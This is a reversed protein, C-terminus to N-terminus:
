KIYKEIIDSKIRYEETIMSYEDNIPTEQKIIEYNKKMRNVPSIELFYKKINESFEDEDDYFVTEKNIHETDNESLLTGDYGLSIYQEIIKLDIIQVDKELSGTLLPYNTIVCKVIQKELDIETFYKKHEILFDTKRNVQEIGKYLAAKYNVFDRSEFPYEICKIEGILITHKTEWILDIEENKGGYKFKKRSCIKSNFGKHKCLDDILVKTYNEFENGKQNDHDFLEKAWTDLLMNPNSSLSGLAILFDNKIVLMPKSWFDEKLNNEFLKLISIIRQKGLTTLKEIMSIITKREFRMQLNNIEFNNDSKDIKLTECIKLAIYQICNYVLIVDFLSDIKKKPLYAYHVLLSSCFGSFLISFYNDSFDAYKIFGYANVFEVSEIKVNNIRSQLIKDIMNDRIMINLFYLENNIMRQTSISRYLDFINKKLCLYKDNRIEVQTEEFCVKDYISKLCTFHNCHILFNKYYENIVSKKLKICIKNKKPKNETCYIIISFTFNLTDIINDNIDRFSREQNGIRMRLIDPIFSSIFDIDKRKDSYRQNLSLYDHNAIILSAILLNYSENKGKLYHKTTQCFNSYESNALINYLVLSATQTFESNKFDENLIETIGKISFKDHFPNMTVERSIKNIFEQYTM